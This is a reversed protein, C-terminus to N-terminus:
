PTTETGALANRVVMMEASKACCTELCGVAYVRGLTGGPVQWLIETVGTTASPCDVGILSAQECTETGTPELFFFARSVPRSFTARVITRADMQVTGEVVPLMQGTETLFNLTLVTLDCIAISPVPICLVQGVYIINRNTVQPNAALLVEVTIGFRKAISFM